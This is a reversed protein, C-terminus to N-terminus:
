FPNLRIASADKLKAGAPARLVQPFQGAWQDIIIKAFATPQYSRVSVFTIPDIERDAFQLVVRGTAPDRVEGEIAVIGTTLPSAVASLPGIFFSATTKAM